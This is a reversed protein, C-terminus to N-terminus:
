LVYHPYLYKHERMWEALEIVMTEYDPIRYSFDWCTRKLSKDISVADVPTIMIKEKRIYKNFLTLLDYKSISTDPVM